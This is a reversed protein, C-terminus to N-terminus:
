LEHNESDVLTAANNKSGNKIVTGLVILNLLSFSFGNVILLGSIESCKM